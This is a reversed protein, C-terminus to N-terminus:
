PPRALARSPTVLFHRRKCPPPLPPPTAGMARATTNNKSPIRVRCASSRLSGHRVFRNLHFFEIAAAAGLHQPEIELRHAIALPVLHLAGEGLMAHNEEAVLLQRGLLV